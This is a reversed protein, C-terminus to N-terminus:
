RVPSSRGFGAKGGVQWRPSPFASTGTAIIVADADELPKYLTELQRVCVYLSDSRSVTRLFYDSSSWTPGDLSSLMGLRRHSTWGDSRTMRVAHCDAVQQL